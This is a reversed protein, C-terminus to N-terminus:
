GECTQSWMIAGHQGFNCALDIGVVDSSGEFLRTIARFTTDPSCDNILVFQASFGLDELEGGCDRREEHPRGDARHYNRIPLLTDGCLRHARQGQLM